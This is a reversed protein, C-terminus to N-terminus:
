PRRIVIPPHLAYRKVLAQHIDLGLAVIAVCEAYLDIAEQPEMTEMLETSFGDGDVWVAYRGHIVVRQGQWDEFVVPGLRVAKYIQDGTKPLHTVWNRTGARLAEVTPEM